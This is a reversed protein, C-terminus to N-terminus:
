REAGDQPQGKFHREPSLEVFLSELLVTERLGAIRALDCAEYGHGRNETDERIYLEAACLFELKGSGCSPFCSNVRCRSCRPLRPHRCRTLLGNKLVDAM